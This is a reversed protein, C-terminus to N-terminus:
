KVLELSHHSGFYQWAAEDEEVEWAPLYLVREKYGIGGESEYCNEVLKGVYDFNCLSIFNWDCNLEKVNERSGQSSLISLLLLLVVSSIQVDAIIDLQTKLYSERIYTRQYVSKLTDYEKQFINIKWEILRKTKGKTM